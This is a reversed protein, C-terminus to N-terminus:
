GLRLEDHRHLATNVVGVAGEALGEGAREARRQIAQPLREAGFRFGLRLKAAEAPTDGSPQWRGRGKQVHCGRGTCAADLDPYIRDRTM